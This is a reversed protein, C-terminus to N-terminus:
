YRNKLNNVYRDSAYNTFIEEWELVEAKDSYCQGKGYLFNEIKHPGM